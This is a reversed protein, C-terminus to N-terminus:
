KIVKNLRWINSEKRVIISVNYNEKVLDEVLCAGIFGTAGTVLINKM